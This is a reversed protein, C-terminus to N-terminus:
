CTLMHLVLQVMLLDGLLLVLAVEDNYIIWDEIKDDTTPSTFITKYKAVYNGFPINCEAFGIQEVANRINEYVIYLIFMQSEESLDSIDFLHYTNM